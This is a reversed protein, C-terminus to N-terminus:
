GGAVAKHRLDVFKRAKRSGPPQLRRNLEEVKEILVELKIRLRSRIARAVAPSLELADIGSAPAIYLRLEDKEATSYAELQWAAIGPVELLANEVAGPYVTAGHIKMMDDTRAMVPGLRQSDRGCPCRGEVLFSLDGLNYRVLPVGKVGITTITVVGIEGAPLPELTAPDLIEVLIERPHVHLGRRAPCEAALFPGESGGYTSVLPVGWAEEIMKGLSNRGLQQNMVNEAISTVMRVPLSIDAEKAARGLRLLFSPVGHVVTAQLNDIAQLSERVFGPGFRAVSAGAASFCLYFGFGAMWMGSAMPMTLHVLDRHRIGSHALTEGGWRAVRALDGRTMPLYVPEGTTGSTALIDAWHHRPSAFFDRNRARFDAKSVVPLRRFDDWCSIDAPTIGISSFLERYFPSATAARTVTDFVGAWLGPALDPFVGAPAEGRPKGITSKKM